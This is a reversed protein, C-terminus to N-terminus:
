HMEGFSSSFGFVGNTYMLIVSLFLHCPSGSIGHVCFLVASLGSVFSSPCCPRLFWIQTLRCTRTWHQLVWEMRETAQSTLIDKLFLCFLAVIKHEEKLVSPLDSACCWPFWQHNKVPPLFCLSKESRCSCASKPHQLRANKYLDASQSCGKLYQKSHSISLGFTDQFLQICM